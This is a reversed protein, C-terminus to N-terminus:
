RKYEMKIHKIGAEIFPESTTKFGGKEYYKIAHEQANIEIKKNPFREKITSIINELLVKGRGTGRVKKNTLVRGFTIYDQVEFIRAYAIIGSADTEFIHLAIKDNEDPETYVIHQEEVFVESRVRYIEFLEALSLDNFEKIKWMSSAM